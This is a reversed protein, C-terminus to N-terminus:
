SKPYKLITIIHKRNMKEINYNLKDKLIMQIYQRKGKIMLKM